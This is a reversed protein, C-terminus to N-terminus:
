RSSSSAPLSAPELASEARAVYNAADFKGRGRLERALRRLLEGLLEEDFLQVVQSFNDFYPLPKM